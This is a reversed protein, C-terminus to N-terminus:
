ATPGRKPPRPRRSPTSIGFGLAVPVSTSAHAQALLDRAGDGQSSREGTTGTVGVVYMFGRATAGVGAMREPSTTPAVLPM